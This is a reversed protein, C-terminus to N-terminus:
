RNARSRRYVVFGAHGVLLAAWAVVVPWFWLREPTYAFDIAALNWSVIGFIGLHLELAQGPSLSRSRHPVAAQLGAIAATQEKAALEEAMEQIVRAALCPQERKRLWHFPSM